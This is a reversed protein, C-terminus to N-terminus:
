ATRLRDAAQEPTLDRQAEALMEYGVMFKRVTASRLLPPYFHAHVVWGESGSPAGHWGMSYPFPTDFLRDYRSLGDKLLEALANREPETLEPLTAVPRKPLVLAEFPWVAWFPVLWAWHENQAVVREGAALEQALYDSLMARGHDAFYRRQSADEKAVLTPLTDSAWLQGHPHPNSAGMAAGRNEFVQVWRWRASLEEIQGAWLDVVSRIGAPSMEALTLGHNPSFCLVRCEGRVPEATLLGDAVPAFESEPLLASFDNTFAFTSAYEPNREGNARVNGPCLYCEPDYEPRPERGASEVAGQWPRQTRHPSVLVWEDLLPNYRRHPSARMSTRSAYVGGWVDRGITFRPSLNKVGM